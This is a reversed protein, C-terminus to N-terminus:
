EGSTMIAQVETRQHRSESQKLVRQKKRISGRRNARGVRPQDSDGGTRIVKWFAQFWNCETHNRRYSIVHPYSYVLVNFLGQLPYFIRSLIYLTFSPGSGYVTVMRYIFSFSVSFLFAAVYAAARKSIEEMRRVSSARSPRSLYAALFSSRSTSSQSNSHKTSTFTPWHRMPCFPCSKTQEEEDNQLQQPPTSSQEFSQAYAQYKKTQSRFTWWIVALITCNGVFAIIVPLGGGIWAM